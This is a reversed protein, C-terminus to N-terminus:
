QEIGRRALVVLRQDRRCEGAQWFPPLQHQPVGLDLAAAGGLDRRQEADCGVCDSREGVPGAFTQARGIQLRMQLPREVGVALLARRVESRVDAIAQGRALPALDVLVQARAFRALRQQEFQLVRVRVQAATSMGSSMPTGAALYRAAEPNLVPTMVLLTRTMLFVIRLAATLLGAAVPMMAAPTTVAITAAPTATPPPNSESGLNAPRGGITLTTPSLPGPPVPSGTCAAGSSGDSVASVAVSSEVMVVSPSGIM